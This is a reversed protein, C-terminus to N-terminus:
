RRRSASVSRLAYCHSNSSQSLSTPFTCPCSDLWPLLLVVLVALAVLVQAILEPSLGNSVLLVGCRALVVSSVSTPWAQYVGVTSLFESSLRRSPCFCPCIVCAAVPYGTVMDFVSLTLLLPGALALWNWVGGVRGLNAM